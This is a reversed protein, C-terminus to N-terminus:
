GCVKLLGRKRKPLDFIQVRRTTLHDTQLHITALAGFIQRVASIMFPLESGVQSISVTGAHLPNVQTMPVSAEGVRGKISRHNLDPVLCGAASLRHVQPSYVFCAVLAPAVVRDHRRSAGQGQRQPQAQECGGEHCYKSAQQM